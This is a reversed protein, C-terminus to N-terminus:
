PATTGCSTRYTNQSTVNGGSFQNTEPYAWQSYDYTGGSGCGVSWDLDEVPPRSSSSVSWDSYGRPGSWSSRLYQQHTRLYSINGTCTLATEAELDAGSRSVDGVYLSCSWPAAAVAVPSASSSGATDTPTYTKHAWRTYVAPSLCASQAGNTTCLVKVQASAAGAPAPAPSSPQANAAGGGAAILTLAGLTVLLLKKM